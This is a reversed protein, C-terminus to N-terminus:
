FGLYITPSFEVENDPKTKYIESIYIVDTTTNEVHLQYTGFTSASWSINYLGNDADSLEVNVTTGSDLTGNIYIESLFSAPVVPENTQPNFSRVLEYVTQGTKIIM